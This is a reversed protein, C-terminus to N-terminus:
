GPVAGDMREVLGARWGPPDFPQAFYDTLRVLKGDRLEVIGVYSVPVGDGYDITAEIAYVHGEGVVRRLTIEPHLGTEHEYIELVRRATDRTMREGSQPFVEVFDDAALEAIARALTPLDSAQYAAGLRDVVARNESM